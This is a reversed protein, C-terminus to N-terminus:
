APNGFSISDLYRVRYLLRSRATDADSFEKRGHLINNCIIGQGADLEFEIVDSDDILIDRILNIARESVKDSKWDINRPRASYRMHLAGSRPCISFVPGSQEPRVVRNAQINAPIVMLDHAMLAAILEPATDRIRIYMLEHDFVYSGGGQAAPHVCYLAFANIQQRTSNYYGDTHWNLKRSTYPVYQSRNDDPGVDKLESIGISDADSRVEFDNLGLRHNIDLFNQKASQESCSDFEYLVFNYADIQRKLSETKAESLSNEPDIRLIELPDLESRLAFKSDRWQRYRTENELV